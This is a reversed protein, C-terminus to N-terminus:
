RDDHGPYSDLVVLMYRDGVMRSLEDEDAAVPDVDEEGCGGYGEYILGTPTRRHFVRWPADQGMRAAARTLRELRTAKM